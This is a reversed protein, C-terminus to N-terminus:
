SAESTVNVITGHADGTTACGGTKLGSQSIRALSTKVHLLGSSRSAHEASVDRRQNQPAVSLGFGVHNQPGFWSVM